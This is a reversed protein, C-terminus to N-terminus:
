PKADLWNPGLGCEAVMPVRLQVANEMHRTIDKKGEEAFDDRLECVVEDHIQSTIKAKGQEPNRYDYLVGRDLWERYLNRMAIKIVDAVSGQDPTNSAERLARLKKGYQKSKVDPLFRVRGTITRVFGHKEAYAHCSGQYNLVGPYKGFYKSIFSQAERKSIGLQDALGQAQLEYILGFNIAKADQRTCGCAEATEIHIDRGNRYAEILAADRSLHAMMRLDAQSYDCVGLQWGENAIFARRIIKWKGQSPINQGNPKASALRGTATRTQNYEPRLRGDDWIAAKDALSLTFTNCITAIKAYAQKIEVARAGKSGKKVAGSVANLHAKDVSYRGSAGKKFWHLIPWWKLEEYMRSSVQPNSSIEILEGSLDSKGVLDSFQQRLVVMEASLKQYMEVLQPTDIAVGSEQMHVLVPVFACELDVFAKWINLEKMRPRFFDGLLLCQVGDDAGYAAMNKAPIEHARCGVPLVTDLTLMRHRLHTKVAAKLNLENAKQYGVMFQAIMSCRMKAIPDIDLTKSVMWDFKLNYAWAEKEKDTLAHKLLSVAEDRPANEGTHAIPIYTKSGDPFGLSYGVAELKDFHLPADKNPHSSSTEFDFGFRPSNVLKERVARLEAPTISLIKM